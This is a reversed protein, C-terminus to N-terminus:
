VRAALLQWAGPVGKLAHTGRDEFEIGSGALLPPVAGSVVVEGPGAHHLVRAAIHVAIGGVDDGRREIEGTHIGARTVIGYGALEDRLAAACTIARGPSDFTALIGDGTTKVLFGTFRELVRGTTDDHVDLLERWRRDGLEAAQDTSAVIDTFLVTALVRDGAGEGGGGGLFRDIADLIPDVDGAYLLHDAGPLELLEASPIAQALSKGEEPGVFPNESRQIVLTPVSIQGLLPRVDAEVAALWLTSATAPSAGRRGAADFWSRFRQDDRMSPAIVDIVDPTAPAAEKGDLVEIFRDLGDIRTGSPHDDSALLRAFAHVLVLASVRDPHHAALVMAPLGMDFSAVLACRESGADDLVALIDAAWDDPTTRLNRDLPDSQGVGRRDNLILRGISGLRRVIRAASPYDDLADMPLFAGPFLMVDNSGAGASQGLVQYALHTDGNRAYRVSEM